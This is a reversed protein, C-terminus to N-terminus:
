RELSNRENLLPCDCQTAEGSLRDDHCGLHEFGHHGSTPRRSGLRAVNGVSNEVAGVCEHKRTLRADTRM